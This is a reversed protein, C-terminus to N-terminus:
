ESDTDMYCQAPPITVQSDTETDTFWGYFTCLSYNSSVTENGAFSANTVSFLQLFLLCAWISAFANGIQIGVFQTPPFCSAGSWLKSKVEDLTEQSNLCTTYLTINATHRFSTLSTNWTMEVMGGSCVLGLQVAMHEEREAPPTICVSRPISIPESDSAVLNHDLVYGGTAVCVAGSPIIYDDSSSSTSTTSPDMTTLDLNYELQDDIFVRDDDCENYLM